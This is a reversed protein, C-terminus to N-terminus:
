VRQWLANAIKWGASTRVLHLYERYVASRVVVAAITDYVDVVEVQIQPDGGNPLRTTGVGRATAEIMEEATLSDLQGSDGEGGEEPKAAGKLSRKALQPHLAREMRGADGQFWGEFYDLVTAVIATEDAAAEKQRSAEPRVTPM